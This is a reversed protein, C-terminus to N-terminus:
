PQETWKWGMPIELEREAIAAWPTGPHQQVVQRLLVEARKVLNRLSSGADITAAPELVWRTSDAREFNRGRKLAALMANYGDIRAKAACTRGFALDFAAMWRPRTLQERDGAGQKLIEFLRNVDPAVRAASQQAQDLRRKLEAESGKVFITTPNRLVETSGLRAAQHLAVRANNARVFSEYAEEGVQDPRYDRLRRSDFRLAGYGPWQRRQAAAILSEEGVTRVALYSGGTADCMWQLAFPGFGSDVLDWEEDVAFQLHIRERHRSEPGQRVPLWTAVGADGADGVDSSVADLSEKSASEVSADLAAMRGLPAPTGVVYVPIAYKVPLTISQDVLPWDDGAEDTVIVLMVEVKEKQRVPLYKELVENMAAFPVERGSEGPRLDDLAQCVRASDPTRALREEPRGTFTWVSSTLRRRKELAMEEVTEHYFDRLATQIGSGWEMASTSDDILWIVFTPSFDAADEVIQAIRSVADPGTLGPEDNSSRKRATRKQRGFTVESDGRNSRVEKAPASSTRRSTGARSQGAASGEQEHPGAQERPGTSEGSCGLSCILVMLAQAVSLRSSTNM